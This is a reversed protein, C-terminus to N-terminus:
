HQDADSDGKHVIIVNDPLFDILPKVDAWRMGGMGCGPRPLYFTDNPLDAAVRALARASLAILYPYSQDRWHDKTPFSFLSRGKVHVGFVENGCSRVLRGLEADLGPFRDLAERAVGAGMVLSGDAKVVGNTTIGIWAGPPADWLDMEREIM